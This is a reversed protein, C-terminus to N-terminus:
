GDQVLAAASLGRILEFNARNDNPDTVAFWLAQLYAQQRPDLGFLEGQHFAALQLLPKDHFSLLAANSRPDDLQSTARLAALLQKKAEDIDAHSFSQRPLPCYRGNLYRQPDRRLWYSPSWYYLEETNKPGTLGLDVDPDDNLPEVFDRRRDLARWMPDREVPAKHSVIFARQAAYL